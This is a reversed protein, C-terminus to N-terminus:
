GRDPHFDSKENRLATSCARDIGPDVHINDTLIYRLAYTPEMTDPPSFHCDTKLDHEM